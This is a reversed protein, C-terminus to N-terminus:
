PKVEEPTGYQYMGDARKSYGVRWQKGDETAYEMKGDRETATDALVRGHPTITASQTDRFYEVPTRADPPEATGGNANGGGKGGCGIATAILLAALMGALAGDKRM